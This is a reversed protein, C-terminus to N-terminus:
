CDLVCSLNGIQMTHSSLNLNYIKQKLICKAFWGEESSPKLTASLASRHLNAANKLHEILRLQSHSERIIKQNFKLHFRKWLSEESIRRTLVNLGWSAPTEVSKPQQKQRFAKKCFVTSELPSCRKEISTALGVLQYGQFDNWLSGIKPEFPHCSNWYEM